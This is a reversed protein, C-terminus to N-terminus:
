QWIRLSFQIIVIRRNIKNCFNEITTKKAISYYNSLLKLFILYIIKGFKNTVGVNKKVATSETHTTSTTTPTHTGMDTTTPTHLTTIATIFNLNATPKVSLLPIGM